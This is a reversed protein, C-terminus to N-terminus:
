NKPAASQKAQLLKMLETIDVTKKPDFITGTAKMGLKVLKNNANNSASLIDVMYFSFESSLNLTFNYIDIIASITAAACKTQLTTDKITVVGKALEINSNLSTVETEGTELANKLDISATKLNYDKKNINEILSDISFQPIIMEKAILTSKMYINYLLKELTDGNTSFAGNISAWGSTNLLGNPLIKALLALDISNLAYVFNLTHPELLISGEGQLNGSLWDAGLNSIKLLIGDNIISFRLKDLILDNQYLKLSLCDLSLSVKDLDFNNLLIERIYLLSKPTLFQV